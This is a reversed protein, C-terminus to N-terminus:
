KPGDHAWISAANATQVPYNWRLLQAEIEKPSHGLEVLTLALQCARGGEQEATLIRKECVEPHLQQLPGPLRALQRPSLPALKTRFAVVGDRLPKAVEFRVCRDVTRQLLSAHAASEGLGLSRALDDARLTVGSPTMALLSSVRRLLWICSPGLIPLWFYEVYSSRPEFGIEQVLPDVWMKITLLGTSETPHECHGAATKSAVFNQQDIIREPSDTRNQDPSGLQTRM